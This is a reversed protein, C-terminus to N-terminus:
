IKVKTYTLLSCGDVAAVRVSVADAPHGAPGETFVGVYAPRGNFRAQILRIPSGPIGSFADGICSLASQTDALSSSGAYSASPSSIRSQAAATAALKGASTANYDTQQIEVSLSKSAQPAAPNQNGEATAGTDVSGAPHNRGIISPLSFAIVAVVAAAAAVALFRYRRSDLSVVAGSASRGTEAEDIAAQGLGPPAAVEPLSRLASVAGRALEAEDRCRPCSALHAEVVARDESSRSGDVYDALLDEPHTM